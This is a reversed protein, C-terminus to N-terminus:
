IKWLYKLLYFVLRIKNLVIPVLRLMGLCLLADITRITLVLVFFLCSYGDVRMFEVCSSSHVKNTWKFISSFKLFESLINSRPFSQFQQNQKITVHTCEHQTCLVYRFLKYEQQVGNSRRACVDLTALVKWMGVLYRFYYIGQSNIDLESKYSLCINNENRKKINYGRM